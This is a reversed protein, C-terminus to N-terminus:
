WAAGLLWSTNILEGPRAPALLRGGSLACALSWLALRGVFLAQAFRRRVAMALAAVAAVADGLASASPAPLAPDAVMAVLLATCATRVLEARSAFRRLWGRVTSPPLELRGAIVRHGQGAAAGELASGIVEVCDARRLLAMVPLLM